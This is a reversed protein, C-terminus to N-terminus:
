WRMIAPITDPGNWSYKVGATRKSSPQEIPTYTVTITVYDIGVQGGATSSTQISCGFNTANIESETWSAGWLDAAGGLTEVAESTSITSSKETAIAERTGGRILRVFGTISGFTTLAQYNVEIGNITAGTPISFGFQTCDLWESGASNNAVARNGDDATVNTPNAWANGAGGATSATGALNPGSVAM